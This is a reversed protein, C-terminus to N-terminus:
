IFSTGPLFKMMHVSIIFVVQDAWLESYRIDPCVVQFLNFYQLNFDILCPLLLAIHM